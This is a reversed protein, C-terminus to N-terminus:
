RMGGQTLRQELQEVVSRLEKIGLLIFIYGMIDSEKVAMETKIVVAQDFRNLDKRLNDLHKTHGDLTVYPMGFIFRGEISNSIASVCSVLIINGIEQLVAKESDSITLTEIEKGTIVEILALAAERSYCLISKGDIHGSFSQSIYVGLSKMEARLYGSLDKNSLIKLEPVQILVRNKVLQALAFAAEGIGINVVERIIDVQKEEFM